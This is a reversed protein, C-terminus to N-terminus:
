PAPERSASTAVTQRPAPVSSALYLLIAAAMIVVLGTGATAAEGPPGVAVDVAGEPVNWIAFVAFIGVLVAALGLVTRQRLATALTVAFAYGCVIAVLAPTAFVPDGAVSAWPMLAGFAILLASLYAIGRAVLRM